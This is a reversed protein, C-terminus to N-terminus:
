PTLRPPGTALVSALYDQRDVESDVSLWVTPPDAPQDRGVPEVIPQERAQLWQRWRSRAQQHAAIRAARQEAVGLQVALDDLSTDTVEVRSGNKRLLGVRCLEAIGDYGSSRSVAAATAIEAAEVAGDLVTEYLRRYQLGLISWVPHVGAVPPRGPGEPYEDRVDPTVLAYRDAGLGTGRAVLLVPSGPTDRLLRLASWVASESILGCALSLSRGGVGVVPVGNIVQGARVASVALGQLVAAIVWRRPSSRLTVDCWRVAHALWAQHVARSPTPGRGGTHEQSKHTGLQVTPLISELWARAAEWDRVLAEDSRQGYREYAASFGAHWPQGRGTLSRVDALSHGRWLAHVLVSMRAESRSQWRSGAKLQGSEAFAIVPAPIPTRRQYRERLTMHAGTGTFYWSAPSASPAVPAEVPSAGLHRTLREILDTPNPSALVALAQTLTQGLLQRHGGERCPSGPVTICGSAPNLMPSTDLSPCAAAAQGLLPRLTELGVWGALPVLIHSGGSTSRDVVARAGCTTLWHLIRQRDAAVAASGGHKADLDFALLRTRGRVYIPVAAPASPVKATLRRIQGFRRQPSWLRMTPRAAIRPALAAWLQDPGPGPSTDDVPRAPALTTM